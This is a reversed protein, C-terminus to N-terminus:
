ERLDQSLHYRRYNDWKIGYAAWGEGAGMRIKRIGKKIEMKGLASIM